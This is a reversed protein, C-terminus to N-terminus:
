GRLLYVASVVVGFAIVVVRLRAPPISGALRGGVAGGLLGCPAMVAAFGWTVEGSFALLVAASTNIVFALVQKVANVENLPGHSLVGLVAILMIGLGAGFFGGYLAAGFIGVLELHSIRPAPEMASSHMADSHNPAGAIRRRLPDQAALLVCSLLILFPVVRRFADDSVVLLLVSGVVGGVGAVISRRVLTSREAVLAGRQAAAGGLYGPCLAVTNTANAQVTPVGVATLVPFSILTGGGAIANVAGATLTAGGVALGSLLTLEAM